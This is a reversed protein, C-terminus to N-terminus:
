FRLPRFPEGAAIIRTATERLAETIVPIFNGDPLADTPAVDTIWPDMTTSILFPIPVGPKPDVGLRRAYADVLPQGYGAPDFTSSTVFLPTEPVAGLHDPDYSHLSLSRYVADNLAALRALDTNLGDETRFNLSYSVIIQDSGLERLLEMAEDDAFLDKNSRSVVRERLFALQARVAEPSAGEREAPLRQFPTLTFPQEGDDLTVLAAYLRKSNWMCKELLRGYGSRNTRIVRHSLYVGGAAAGPKSGEIGYVGMSPDIGGHYVVPATFAVLTRMAGNRYCLGGAPYPTYGAKHPDVTITDAHGLAEYQRTVYRSMPLEPEPERGPLVGDGDPRDDAYPDPRLMSAFYGGWAGDVHVAFELGAARYEERITIVDALPDVASEETTGLVVVVQAVPRQQALCADLHRRLHSLDMRADLDVHIAEVAHAGLGLV